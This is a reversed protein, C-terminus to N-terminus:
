FRRVRQQQDEDDWGDETETKRGPREPECQRDARQHEGSAAIGRRLFMRGMAPAAEESYMPHKIQWCAIEAVQDVATDNMANLVEVRALAALRRRIEVLGSRDPLYERRKRSLRVFASDADDSEANARKRRVALSPLVPRKEFNIRCNGAQRAIRRLERVQRVARRTRADHEAVSADCQRFFRSVREVKQHDIREARVGHGDM